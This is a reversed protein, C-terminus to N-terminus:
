KAVESTKEATRAKARQINHFKLRCNVCDVITDLLEDALRKDDEQTRGNTEASSDPTPAWHTPKLYRDSQTDVWEDVSADWWMERACWKGDKWAGIVYGGSKPATEIPLWPNSSLPAPSEGPWVDDFRVWEGAPDIRFGVEDTPVATYRIIDVTEATSNAM